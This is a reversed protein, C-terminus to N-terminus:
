LGAASASFSSRSSALQRRTHHLKAPSRKGWSVLVPSFFFGFSSSSPRSPPNTAWSVPAKRQRNPPVCSKHSPLSPMPLVLALFFFIHSSPSLSSPSPAPLLPASILPSHTFLHHLSFTHKPLLSTNLRTDPVPPLAGPPYPLLHTQVRHIHPM